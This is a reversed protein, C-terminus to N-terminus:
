LLYIMNYLIIILLCIQTDAYQHQKSPANLGFGKEWETFIPFM